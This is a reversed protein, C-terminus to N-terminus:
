VFCVLLLGLIEFPGCAVCACAEWMVFAGVGVYVCVWLVCGGVYVSVCMGVCVFDCHVLIIGCSLYCLM